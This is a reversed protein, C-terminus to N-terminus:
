FDESAAWIFDSETLEHYPKHKEIEHFFWHLSDKLAIEVADGLGSTWEANGDAPNKVAVNPFAAFGASPREIVKIHFKPFPLQGSAWIVFVAVVRHIVVGEVKIETWHM